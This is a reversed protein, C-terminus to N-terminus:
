FSVRRPSQRGTRAGPKQHLAHYLLVTIRPPSARRYPITLLYGMTGWTTGDRDLMSAQRATGLCIVVGGCGESRSQDNGVIYASSQITSNLSLFTFLNCSFRHPCCSYVTENWETNILANSGRTHGLITMTPLVRAPKACVSLSPLLLSFFFFLPDHHRLPPRYHM